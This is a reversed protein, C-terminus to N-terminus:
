CDALDGRRFALGYSVFGCVIAVAIMGVGHLWHVRVLRIFGSYAIIVAAGGVLAILTTVVLKLTFALFRDLM